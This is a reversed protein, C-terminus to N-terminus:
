ESGLSKGARFCCRGDTQEKIPGETQSLDVATPASLFQSTAKKHNILDSLPMEADLAQSLAREYTELTVAYTQKQPVINSAFITIHAWTLVHEHSVMTHYHHFGDTDSYHLIVTDTNTSFGDTIEEVSSYVERIESVARNLTTQREQVSSFTYETNVIEIVYDGVQESIISITSTTATKWTSNGKAPSLPLIPSITAVKGFASLSAPKLLWTIPESEMGYARPTSQATLIFIVLVLLNASVKIPTFM